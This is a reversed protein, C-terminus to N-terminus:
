RKNTWGWFNIRDGCVWASKQGVSYAGRRILLAKALVREMMARFVSRYAIKHKGM